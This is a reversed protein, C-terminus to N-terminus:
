CGSAPTLGGGRGGGCGSFGLKGWPTPNPKRTGLSTELSTDRLSAGSTKAPSTRTPPKCSLDKDTPVAMVTAALASGPSSSNVGTGAMRVITSNYRGACLNPGMKVSLRLTPTSICSWKQRKSWLSYSYVSLSSGSGLDASSSQYAKQIYSGSLPSLDPQMLFTLFHNCWSLFFQQMLISFITVDLYFSYHNCWSLVFLPQLITGHIM